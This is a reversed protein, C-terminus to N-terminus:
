FCSFGEGGAGEAIGIIVAVANAKCVFSGSDCPASAQSVFLAVPRMSHM